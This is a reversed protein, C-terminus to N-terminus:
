AAVTGMSELYASIQGYDDVRALRTIFRQGEILDGWVTELSAQINYPTSMPYYDRTCALFKSEATTPTQSVFLAADLLFNVDAFEAEDFDIESSSASGTAFMTVDSQTPASPKAAAPPDEIFPLLFWYLRTNLSVFWQFGSCYYGIGLSNTKEQAPLAAWTDWDDRQTQTLSRWENPWQSVVGRGFSQQLSWTQVPVRRSKAYSCAKNRSFVVGGISGRAEDVPTIFKLKAMLSSGKKFLDEASSASGIRTRLAVASVLSLAPPRLSRAPFPALGAPGVVRGAGGQAVHRARGSAPPVVSAVCGRSLARRGARVFLACVWVLVSFGSRAGPDSQHTGVGSCEFPVPPLKM